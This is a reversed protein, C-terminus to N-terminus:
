VELGGLGRCRLDGLGRFGGCFRKGYGWDLVIYGLIAAEMKGNDWYLGLMYGPTCYDHGNEKGSDRCLGLLIGIYGMYLGLLNRISDRHDRYSGNEKGNDRYFM